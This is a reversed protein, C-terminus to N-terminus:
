RSQRKEGEGAQESQCSEGSLICLGEERCAASNDCDSQRTAVCSMWGLMCKGHRTCAESRRCEDNTAPICADNNNELSCRGHKKCSASNECDVQRTAHCWGDEIATCRGYL